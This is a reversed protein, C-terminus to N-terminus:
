KWESIISNPFKTYYNTTNKLSKINLINKWFSINKVWINDIPYKEYIFYKNNELTYINLNIAKSINWVKLTKSCEWAKIEWFNIDPYISLSNIDIQTQNCIQLKFFKKKLDTIKYPFINWIIFVLLILSFYTIKKM